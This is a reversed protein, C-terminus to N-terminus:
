KLNLNGNVKLPRKINALQEIYTGAVIMAANDTNFSKPPAFFKIKRKGTEIEFEERLANNSAVGGSIIVSRAGYTDAARMTKKVLSDIIASQFSACLDPANQPLPALGGEIALKNESKWDAKHSDKLHYLLATKLGSFSFDYNKQNLMPRPFEIANKDGLKALKEIEPGGPYPLGLLRAAKDYTEGAADDRTEGLKKIDSLSDLLLLITHGGSVILAISPFISSIKKPNDLLFSYLHGKLHNSAILPIDMDKSLKKAFEVGTHLAPELGPGVTVAIADIKKANKDAFIEEALIPLIREHERKALNPVVGGFKKHIDIQSSVINKLVEFRPTTLNGTCKLLSLSTEDCSTEIGLILM